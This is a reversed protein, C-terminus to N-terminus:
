AVYAPNGTGVVAPVRNRGRMRALLSREVSVQIALFTGGKAAAAETM